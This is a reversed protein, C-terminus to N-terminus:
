YKTKIKLAISKYEFRFYFSISIVRASYHKIAYKFAFCLSMHLVCNQQINLVNVYCVATKNYYM